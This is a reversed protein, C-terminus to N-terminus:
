STSQDTTKQGNQVTLKGYVFSIVGATTVAIKIYIPIFDSPLIALYENAAGLATCLAFFGAVWTHLIEGFKTSKAKFREKLTM